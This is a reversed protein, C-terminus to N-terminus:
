RTATFGRLTTGHGIIPTVPVAHSRVQRVLAGTLGGVSWADIGRRGNRAADRGFAPKYLFTRCATVRTYVRQRLPTAASSIRRPAGNEDAFNTPVAGGADSQHKTAHVPTSRRGHSRAQKLALGLRSVEVASRQARTVVDLGPLRTNRVADDGAIARM